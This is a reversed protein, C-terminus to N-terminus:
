QNKKNWLQADELIVFQYKEMFSLEPIGYMKLGSHGQTVGSEVQEIIIKVARLVEPLNKGKLYISLNQM